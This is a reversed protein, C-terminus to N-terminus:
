AGSFTARDAFFSAQVRSGHLNERPWRDRSSFFVFLSTSTNNAPTTKQRAVLGCSKGRLSGTKASPQSKGRGPELKKAELIGGCGGELLCKIFAKWFCLHCYCLCQRSFFHRCSAEVHPSLFSDLRKLAAGESCLSVPRKQM